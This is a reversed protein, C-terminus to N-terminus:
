EESGPFLKIMLKVIIYFVFLVGIVTTVGYAMVKLGEKATSFAETSFPRNMALLLNIM